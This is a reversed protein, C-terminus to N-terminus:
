LCGDKMEVNYSVKNCASMKKVLNAKKNMKYPVVQAEKNSHLKYTNSPVISRNKELNEAISDDDVSAVSVLSRNKEWNEVFSDDDVGVVMIANNRKIVLEVTQTQLSITIPEIPFMEDAIVLQGIYKGIQM